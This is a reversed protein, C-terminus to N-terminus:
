HPISPSEGSVSLSGTVHQITLDSPSLMIYVTSGQVVIPKVQVPGGAHPNKM